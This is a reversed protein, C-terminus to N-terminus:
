VSFAKAIKFPLQACKNGPGTIHLGIEVFDADPTSFRSIYRELQDSRDSGIFFQTDPMNLDSYNRGIYVLEGPCGFGHAAEFLM